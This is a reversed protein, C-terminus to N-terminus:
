GSTKTTDGTNSGGKGQDLLGAQAMLGAMTESDGGGNDKNPILVVNGPSEAADRIADRMDLGEFYKLAQFHTINLGDCFKQLAESNGEAMTKRMEAHAEAKLKLSEAEAEAQGVTRNRIAERELQSAEQDRKSALVRDFSKRLEESPQPDDVLVNVIRYGYQSFTENLTSEVQQEFEDKSRFIDDMTMDNAQSRISNVVYSMIQKEADDLEYFAEMEKGEIAKIQVKVPVVLFANDSSKVSIEEKTELIQLDVVGAVSDVPAPLKASLGPGTVKHFKGLRQVVKATKQKTIITCTFAFFLAFFLIVPILLHM